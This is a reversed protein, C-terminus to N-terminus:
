TFIEISLHRLTKGLGHKNKDTDGSKPSLVGAYNPYQFLLDLHQLQRQILLPPYNRVNTGKMM